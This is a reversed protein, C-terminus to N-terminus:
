CTGSSGSLHCRKKYCMMGDACDKQEICRKTCVGNTCLQTPPCSEDAKCRTVCTSSAASSWCFQNTDCDADSSCRLSCIGAPCGSEHYDILSNSCSITM